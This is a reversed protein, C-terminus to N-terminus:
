NKLDQMLESVSYFVKGNKIEDQVEKEWKDMINKPVIRIGSNPFIRKEAVDSLYMNLATSLDLGFNSLVKMAKTKTIPNTRISITATNSM